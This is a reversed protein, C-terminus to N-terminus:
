LEIEWEKARVIMDDMTKCSSMSMFDQIDDCLMGHYRTKRMEEDAAYQLVLLARERFKAIIEAVIKM